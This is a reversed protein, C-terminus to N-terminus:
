RCATTVADLMAELGASSAPVGGVPRVLLLDRAQGAYTRVDASRIEFGARAIAAATVAAIM